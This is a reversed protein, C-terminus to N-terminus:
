LKLANIIDEIYNSDEKLYENYMFVIHEKLSPFQVQHHSTHLGQSGISLVPIGEDNLHTEFVPIEGDPNFLQEKTYGAELLLSYRNRLKDNLVECVAEFDEIRTKTLDDM